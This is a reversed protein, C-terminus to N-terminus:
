MGNEFNINKKGDDQLLKTVAELTFGGTFFM